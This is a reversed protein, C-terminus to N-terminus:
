LLKDLPSDGPAEHGTAPEGERKVALMTVDDFQLGDGMFAYVAQKVADLMAM